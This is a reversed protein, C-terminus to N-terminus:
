LYYLGFKNKFNVKIKNLSELLETKEAESIRLNNTLDLKDNNYLEYLCEKEIKL